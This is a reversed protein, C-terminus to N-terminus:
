QVYNTRYSVPNFSLEELGSLPEELGSLPEEFDLLGDVFWNEISEVSCNTQSSHYKM